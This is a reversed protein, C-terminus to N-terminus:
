DEKNYSAYKPLMYKKIPTEKVEGNKFITEVDRLNVEGKEYLYDAFKKINEKQSKLYKYAYKKQKKLTKSVLKENILHHAETDPRQGARESSGVIHELGSYCTRDILNSALHFAKDFDSFSGIDHKKFFIKEALAGSLLIQIREFRKEITDDTDDIVYHVTQGGSSTFKSGYLRVDKSFRMAMIAHGAEHIAVRYNKYTIPKLNRYDIEEMRDIATELDRTTLNDTAELYANNCVSKIEACSIGKAIRAIHDLDLDNCNIGLRNLYFKFIKIIDEKEPDAILIKRDFRGQRTISDPLDRYNNTTALIIVKGAPIADMESQFVKVAMPNSCIFKDIEDIVIISIKEKSAKEFCEHIEEKINKSKGLLDFSPCGMAKIYEKVFLSKGNGPYGFLLIGKPLEVKNNKTIKKDTYWKYIKILESKVCDYGAINGFLEQKKM